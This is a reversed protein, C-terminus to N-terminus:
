TLGLICAALFILDFGSTTIESIKGQNGVLLHVGKGRQMDVAHLIRWFWEKMSLTEGWQPLMM